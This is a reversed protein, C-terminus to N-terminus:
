PGELSVKRWGKIQLPQGWGAEADLRKVSMFRGKVKVSFRDRWFPNQSNHPVSSCWMSDDPLELVVENEESPGVEIVDYGKRWCKIQLPQGWGADMDLRKVTMQKAKVTVAFRDQWRPEQPNHPNSSGWMGSAPLEVVKESTPSPGVEIVEFAELKRSRGPDELCGLTTGETYFEPTKVVWNAIVTVDDMKGGHADHQGHVKANRAFPTDAKRDVMRAQAALVLVEAIAAPETKPSAPSQFHGPVLTECIMRTIEKWHLNDTLGDTYLLVLDGPQVALEYHEADKASNLKAFLGRALLKQPIKTLQYPRNWSHMQEKSMTVIEMAGVKPRLVAFGSDGLNTAAASIGDTALVTITSAGYTRVSSEASVVAKRTRECPSLVVKEEAKLALAAKEMLEDAYAAANVGQKAFNSMGGVGDAVGASNSNYFYADECTGPQKSTRCAGSWFQLKKGRPPAQIAECRSNASSDRPSTSPSEGEVTSAVSDESRPVLIRVHAADVATDGFNALGSIRPSNTCAKWEPLLRNYGDEWGVHGGARLIAFKYEIRADGISSSLRVSGSWRPYTEPDTRLELGAHPEWAGLAGASGVAVVRDGFVTEASVSFAVDVEARGAPAAAM